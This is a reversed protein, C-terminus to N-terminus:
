TRTPADARLRGQAGRRDRAAGHAARAGPRDKIRGNEVFLTLHWKGDAGKEWGIPDGTTRSPSRDRRASRLASGASSRPASPTSGATRSRTSSGRASATRATAGTASCPSSRRPSTSPRRRAHLLRARRGHASLDRARRADHGHRRRGDRELRRARRERRHRHLGLDQAFIDVDNSPPM